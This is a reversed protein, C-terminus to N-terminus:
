ADKFILFLMGHIDWFMREKVIRIENAQDSYENCMNFFDNGNAPVPLTVV